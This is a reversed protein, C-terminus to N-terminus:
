GQQRLWAVISQESWREGEAMKKRPPFRNTKEWRRVQMNPLGIKYRDRIEERSLWRDPVLDANPIPM